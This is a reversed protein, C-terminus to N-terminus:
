DLEPWTSILDGNQLDDSVTFLDANIRWAHMENTKRIKPIGAGRIAWVLLLRDTEGPDSPDGWESIGGGDEFSGDEASLVLRWFREFLLMLEPIEVTDDALLNAVEVPDQIWVFEAGDVLLLAMGALTEPVAPGTMPFFEM